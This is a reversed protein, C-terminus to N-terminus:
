KWKIELLKDVKIKKDNIFIIGKNVDTKKINGTITKFSKNKYYKITIALNNHIAQQLKINIMEKQQEDLIPKEKNDEHEKLNKLEKRHEVLMMATWKKNGRDKFNM